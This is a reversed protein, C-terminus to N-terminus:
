KIAKRRCEIYAEYFSMNLVERIKFCRSYLYSNETNKCKTLLDMFLECDKKVIETDQMKIFYM